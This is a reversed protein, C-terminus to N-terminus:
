GTARQDQSCLKRVIAVTETLSTGKRVLADAHFPKSDLSRAIPVLGELILVKMDSVQEHLKHLFPGLRRGGLDSQLILVRPRTQLLLGLVESSQHTEAVIQFEGTADLTKRIAFVVLPFGAVLLRCPSKM